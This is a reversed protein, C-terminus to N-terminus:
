LSKALAETTFVKVQKQKQFHKDDSWIPKNLQLALAIFPIDNIDISKMTKVAKEIHKKNIENENFVTMKSLLANMLFNFDNENLHAKKMIFSKFKEVEKVGFEISYLEFKKCYIIKRSLGDRILAAIIRNTNVILEM